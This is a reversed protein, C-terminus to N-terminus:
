VEGPRCMNCSPRWSKPSRMYIFICSLPIKEKEIERGNEREWKLLYINGRLGGFSKGEHKMIWPHTVYGHGLHMRFQLEALLSLPLRAASAVM